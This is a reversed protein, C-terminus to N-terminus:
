LSLLRNEISWPPQKTLIEYLICGVSWIDSAESYESYLM